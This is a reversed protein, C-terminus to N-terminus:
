KIPQLNYTTPQFPNAPWKIDFDLSKKLLQFFVSDRM